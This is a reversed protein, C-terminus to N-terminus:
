SSLDHPCDLFDNYVFNTAERGHEFFGVISKYESGSSGM